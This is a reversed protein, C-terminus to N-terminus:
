PAPPVEPDSEHPSQAGDPTARDQASSAVRTAGISAVVVCGMALWQQLSLAEGLLLLAALAAAAPEVSMLIGFTATPLSRLAVLELTYPVVSSLLGVALGLALLDVHALDDGAALMMPTVALMGIASAVALGDLGEWHRGTSASLVIYGAWFAGALVAFGIGVPDLDGGEWGLLLVGVLALGAWILDRARRSGLVAVALPGIFEITVAVGLPIRAFSHYVAWNMGSLCIGYGLVVWWDTRSRGTLRPRVLALLLATSTALRLWVMTDPEVRDFLGKAVAAGVQVSVISALVMAVARLPAPPRARTPSSSVVM